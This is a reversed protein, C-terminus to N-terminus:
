AGRMRRVLATILGRYRAQETALSEIPAFLFALGYALGSVGTLVIAGTLDLQAGTGTLLRYLGGSIILLPINLLLAPRLARVLEQVRARLCKAALWFMVISSLYFVLVIAAAVGEIGYHQGVYVAVATLALAGIQVPLEYHLWNQAGLVAGAMNDILLAPWALCIIAIVQASELWKEGYVFGVLPDSVWFLLIYLPTLYVALLGVSRFLLYRCRDLNDQEAAIARFLVHYVSGTVFAHPMKALSEGKNYLGVAAAGLTSSLIATSAQQRLYFIIDTASTLAGYQALHKARSFDRTFGPRWGTIAQLVVVSVLSGILGGLVLAWVGMGAFAMIVSLVNTVILIGLNFLAITNFKMGRHLLTTPLNVFPRIIFSLASVRLLDTYIPNEYWVSFAPALAFFFAYIATGIGLQLTFVSRYDDATAEKSRILAQGMGGGALFGAFGTFVQTTLLVGFHEPALLRTLVIGFLFGLIQNGTSGVFLWRVSSRFSQASSM